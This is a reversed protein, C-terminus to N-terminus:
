LIGIWQIESKLPYNKVRSNGRSIFVNSQNLLENNEELSVFQEKTLVDTNM